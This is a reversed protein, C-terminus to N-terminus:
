FNNWLHHICSFLLGMNFKKPQKQSTFIQWMNNKNKNKKLFNCFMIPIKQSHKKHTSMCHVLLPDLEWCWTLLMQHSPKPASVCHTTTYRHIMMKLFSSAYTFCFVFHHLPLQFLFDQLSLVWSLSEHISM